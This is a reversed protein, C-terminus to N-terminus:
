SAPRMERLRVAWDFGQRAHFLVGEFTMREENSLQDPKGIVLGAHQPYKSRELAAVAMAKEEVTVSARWLRWALRNADDGRGEQVARVVEDFLLSHLVLLLQAADAISTVWVFSGDVFAIGQRPSSRRGKLARMFEKARTRTPQHGQLLEADDLGLVLCGCDPATCDVPGDFATWRGDPAVVGDTSLLVAARRAPTGFDLVDGDFGAAALKGM